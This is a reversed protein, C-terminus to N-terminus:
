KGSPCIEYRVRLRKQLLRACYDVPRYVKAGCIDARPNNVPDQAKRVSVGDNIRNLPTCGQSAM